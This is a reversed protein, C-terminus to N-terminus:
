EEFRQIARAIVFALAAVLLLDVFAGLRVGLYPKYLRSLAVVVPVAVVLSILIRPRAM